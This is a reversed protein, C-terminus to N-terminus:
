MYMLLFRSLWHLGTACSSNVGVRPTIKWRSDVSGQGFSHISTMLLIAITAIRINRINLM